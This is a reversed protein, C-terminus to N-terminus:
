ARRRGAFRAGSPLEITFTDGTVTVVTGDALEASGGARLASAFLSRGPSGARDLGPAAPSDVVREGPRPAFVVEVALEGRGFGASAEVGWSEAARQTPHRCTAWVSGDRLTATALWPGPVVGVMGICAAVRRLVAVVSGVVRGDCVGCCCGRGATGFAAATGHSQVTRLCGPCAVMGGRTLASVPPDRARESRFDIEAQPESLWMGKTGASVVLQGAELAAGSRASCALRFRGALWRAVSAPGGGALVVLVGLWYGVDAVNAVGRVLREVVDM